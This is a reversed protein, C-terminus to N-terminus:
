RSPTFATASKETPDANQDLVQAGSASLRRRAPATGGPYQLSAWAASLHPYLLRIDVRFRSVDSADCFTAGTLDGALPLRLEVSTEWVTLGGTPFKCALENEHAPNACYMQVQQPTVGPSVGPIFVPVQQKPGVGRYPYGRNSNPGGSFFGRFYVIQEDLTTPTPSDGAFSNGYNGPFVFGVTTRLALTWHRAVPVYGRVEPQVRIDKAFM